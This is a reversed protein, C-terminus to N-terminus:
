LTNGFFLKLVKDLFSEKKEPFSRNGVMYYQNESVAYSKRSDELIEKNTLYPQDKRARLFEIASNKENLLRKLELYEDSKDKIYGKLKLISNESLKNRELLSPYELAKEIIRKHEDSELLKMVIKSKDGVSYRHFSLERSSPERGLVSLYIKKIEESKESASDVPFFSKYSGGKMYNDTSDGKDWIPVDVNKM